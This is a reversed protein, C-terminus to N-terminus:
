WRQLNTLNEVLISSLVFLIIEFKTDTKRILISLTQFNLTIYFHSVRYFFKKQIAICSTIENQKLWEKFNPFHVDNIQEINSIPTNLDVDFSIKSWNRGSVFHKHSATTKSIFELLLMFSSIIKSSDHKKLFTNSGDEIQFWHHLPAVGPFPTLIKDNLSRCVNSSPTCHNRLLHFQM